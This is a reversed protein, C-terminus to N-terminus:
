QKKELQKKVWQRAPSDEPADLAYAIMARITSNWYVKEHKANTLTQKNYALDLWEASFYLVGSSDLLAMLDEVPIWATAVTKRSNPIPVKIHLEAIDMMRPPTCVVVKYFKFGAVTESLECYTEVNTHLKSAARKELCILAKRAYRINHPETKWEDTGYFYGDIANTSYWPLWAAFWYPTGGRYTLCIWMLLILTTCTAIIGIATLTAKKNSMSKGM